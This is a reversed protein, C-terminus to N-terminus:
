TGPAPLRGAGLTLFSCGLWGGAPPVAHRAVFRGWTIGTRALMSVVTWDHTKNGLESSVAAGSVGLATSLRISPVGHDFSGSAEAAIGGGGACACDVQSQGDYAVGRCGEDMRTYGTSDFAVQAVGNDWDRAVRPRGEADVTSEGVSVNVQAVCSWELM